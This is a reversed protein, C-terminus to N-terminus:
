EVSLATQQANIMTTEMPKILDRHLAFVHVIWRSEPGGHNVVLERLKARNLPSEENESDLVGAEYLIDEWVLFGTESQTLAGVQAAQSDGVMAYFEWDQPVQLIKSFETNAMESINRVWATDLNSAERNYANTKMYESVMVLNDKMKGTETMELYDDISEMCMKTMKQRHSRTEELNTDPTVKQTCNHIAYEVAARRSIHVGNTYLYHPIFWTCDGVSVDYRTATDDNADMTGKTLVQKTAPHCRMVCPIDPNSALMVAAHVPDSIGFRHSVEDYMMGDLVIKLEEPTNQDIVGAFMPRFDVTERNVPPKYQQDKKMASREEANFILSGDFNLLTIRDFEKESDCFMQITKVSACLYDQVPAQYPDSGDVPLEYLKVPKEMFELFTRRMDESREHMTREHGHANVICSCNIFTRVDGEENVSRSGHVNYLLVRDGSQVGAPDRQLSSVGIIQGTQLQIKDSRAGADEQPGEMIAEAAVKGYMEALEDIKEQASSSPEADAGGDQAIDKEMQDPDILNPAASDDEQEGDRNRIPLKIMTDSVILESVSKDFKRFATISKDVDELQVFWRESQKTFSQGARPGNKVMISKESSGGKKGLRGTIRARLLPICGEMLQREKSYVARRIPGRRKAYAAMDGVKFKKKKVTIKVLGDDGNEDEVRQRKSSEHDDDLDEHKRKPPRSKEVDMSDTIGAPITPDDLPPLEHQTAALPLSHTRFNAESKNGLFDLFLFRFKSM